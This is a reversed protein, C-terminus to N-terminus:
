YKQDLFITEIGFEKNLHHALLKVGIKETERHWGLLISQKMEKAMLLQGHSGEGTILLDYRENLAEKAQWWGWWSVIAVSKIFEKKGFNYLKKEFGMQPAFISQMTSIHMEEEFKLWYWIYVGHYKDFSEITYNKLWFINIFAKAIGINNWVEPHADLPLHCAYLAIDNKILKSMREYHRETMVYNLAWFIWHHVLLMDVKEEIAMDFIYTSADVAYGIKKIETKPSDVQLWNRSDDIELGFDKIKLYDDLYNILEIKEM